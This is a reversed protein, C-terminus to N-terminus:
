FKAYIYSLYIKKVFFFQIYLSIGYFLIFVFFAMDDIGCKFTAGQPGAGVGGCGCVGVGVDVSGKFTAGQPGAGVGGCGEM